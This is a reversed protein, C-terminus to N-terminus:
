INCVHYMEFGISLADVGMKKQARNNKQMLAVIVTCKDDNNDPHELTIRYQPNHWFTESCFIWKRGDLYILILLFPNWTEGLYNNCGGATIGRIWKGEFVSMEWHKKDTDVNHGTFSDPSLNCIEVDNLYRKFDHFSMWFEGDTEFTLGLEKKERDPIFKWEPSRNECM